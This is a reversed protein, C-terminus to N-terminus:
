IHFDVRGCAEGDSSKKRSLLVRKSPKGKPRQCGLSRALRQAAQEDMGVREAAVRCSLGQELLTQMRKRRYKRLDAASVRWEGAKRVAPLTGSECLARVRRDVTGLMKAVIPTTLMRCRKPKEGMQRRMWGLVGRAHRSPKRSESTLEAIAAEHQPYKALYERLGHWRDKVGSAQEPERVEEVVVYVANKECARRVANYAARKVYCGFHGKDPQFTRPCEALALLAETDADEQTLTTRKGYARWAKRGTKIAAWRYDLINIKAVV